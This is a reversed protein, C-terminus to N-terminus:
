FRDNIKWNKEAHATLRYHHVGYFLRIVKPFITTIPSVLNDILDEILERMSRTENRKKGSATRFGLKFDDASEELM